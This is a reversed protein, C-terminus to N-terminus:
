PPPTCLNGPGGCFGPPLPIRQGEQAVEGGGYFQFAVLRQDLTFTGTELVTSGAMLSYTGSGSATKAAVNFSGTMETQITLGNSAATTTPAVLVAFSSKSTASGAGGAAIAAIALAAWLLAATRKM